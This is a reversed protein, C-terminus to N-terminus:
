WQEIAGTQLNFCDVAGHFYVVIPAKRCDVGAANLTEHLWKPFLTIATDWFTDCTDWMEDWLAEDVLPVTRFSAPVSIDPYLENRMDDYFTIEIPISCTAADFFVELKIVELTALEPDNKGLYNIIEKLFDILPTKAASFGARLQQELTDNLRFAGM